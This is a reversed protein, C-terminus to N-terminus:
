RPPASPPTLRLPPQFGKLTPELHVCATSGEAWPCERKRCTALVRRRLVAESMGWLKACWVASSDRFDVPPKACNERSFAIAVADDFAYTGDPLAHGLYPPSVQNVPFGADCDSGVELWQSAVLDPRGDRDFDLVSSFQSPEEEIAGHRFRYLASREDHTGEVGFAAALGIEPVGDGDQDHNLLVSPAGQGYNNACCNTEGPALFRSDGQVPAFFNPWEHAVVATGDRTIRALKFSAALEFSGPDSQDNPLYSAREIWFGWAGHDDQSCFEPIVDYPNTPLPEHRTWARLVADIAALRDRARQFSSADSGPSMVALSRVQEESLQKLPKTGSGFPVTVDGLQKVEAALRVAESTLGNANVAKMVARARESAAVLEEENHAALLACPASPKAPPREVHSASLPLAPPEAIVKPTVPPSRSEARKASTCAIPLSACPLFIAVALLRFSALM